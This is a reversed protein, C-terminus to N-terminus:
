GVMGAVFELAVRPSRHRYIVTGTAYGVSCISSIVLGEDAYNVSDFLGLFLVMILATAILSRIESLGM